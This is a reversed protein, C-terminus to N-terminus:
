YVEIESLHLIGRSPHLLRVYRASTPRVNARWVDFQETRRAVDRYTQGDDSLQLVLPIAREQCCDARNYVDVRHLPRAGGLDITVTQDVADESHFGLNDRDGDVVNRPDARVTKSQTVVTVTKGLALNKDSMVRAWLWSLGSLVCVAAVAIRFRRVFVLRKVESARIGMPGVLAQALDHLAVRAQELEAEDLRAL